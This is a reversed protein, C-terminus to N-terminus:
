KDGGVTGVTGEGAQPEPAPKSRLALTACKQIEYLERDLVLDGRCSRMITINTEIQELARELGAVREAMDLLAPLAARIRNETGSLENAPIFDNWQALLERLVQVDPRTTNQTNEKM